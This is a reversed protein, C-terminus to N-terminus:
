VITSYDEAFSFYAIKIHGDFNVLINEPKLDRHRTLPPCACGRGCLVKGSHTDNSCQPLSCNWLM